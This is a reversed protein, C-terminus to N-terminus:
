INYFNIDNIGYIRLAISYSTKDSSDDVSYSISYVVPYMPMAEFAKLLKEISTLDSNSGVVNLNVATPKVVSTSMSYGYDYGSFSISNLLFGNKQVIDNINYLLLSNNSNSPFLLPLINFLKTNNVYEKDLQQLANIRADLVAVTAKKTKIDKKISTITNLTPKIAFFILLISAVVAVGTYIYSKKKDSSEKLAILYDTTIPRSKNDM